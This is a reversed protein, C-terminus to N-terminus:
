SPFSTNQFPAPKSNAITGRCVIFSFVKRGFDRSYAVMSPGYLSPKRAISYALAAYFLQQLLKLSLPLKTRALKQCRLCSADTVTDNRPAKASRSSAFRHYHISAQALVDKYAQFNAHPRQHHLMSSVLRHFKFAM